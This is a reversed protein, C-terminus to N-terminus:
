LIDKINQLVLDDVKTSNILEYNYKIERLHNFYFDEIFKKQLPFLVTNLYDKSEIFEIIDETFKIPIKITKRWDRVPSFNDNEKPPSYEPNTFRDGLGERNIPTVM